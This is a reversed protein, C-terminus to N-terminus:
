DVASERSRCEKEVRREESRDVHYVYKGKIRKIKSRCYYCYYRQRKLQERIQAPTHSGPINKIRARRNRTYIRLYEIYWEKHAQRYEKSYQVRKGKKAAYYKM